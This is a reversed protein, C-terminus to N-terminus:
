VELLLAEVALRPTVNADLRRYCAAIAELGTLWKETNNNTRLGMELQAQMLTVLPRLPIKQDSLHRVSLLREFLSQSLLAVSMDRLALRAEFLTSDLALTRSEGLVGGSLSVAETATAPSVGLRVLEASITETDLRPFFILQCRSQVTALLRELREAILIIITSPPPEEILKLLANQADLTLSEAADVIIVRTGSASFARLSLEAHLSRVREIGLSLKEGRELVICDPHSGAAVLVCSSCPEPASHTCNLRRMLEKATTAKGSGKAGYFIYAGSPSALAQALLRETSPHLLLNM